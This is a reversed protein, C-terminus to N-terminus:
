PAKVAVIARSLRWADIRPGQARRYYGPRTGLRVFGLSQYLALGATNDAAVELVVREAGIAAVRDFCHELLARAIGRRQAPPSVGLTLIEAVEGLCQEILFGCIEGTEAIAVHGNTGPLSLVTALASASWAEDPFCIAHIPALAEIDSRAIARIIASM